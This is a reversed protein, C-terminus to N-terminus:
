PFKMPRKKRMMVGSLTTKINSNQHRYICLTHKTGFSLSYLRRPRCEFNLEITKHLVLPLNNISQGDNWLKTETNVTLEM